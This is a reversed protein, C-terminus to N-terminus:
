KANDCRIRHSQPGVVDLHNFDAALIYGL